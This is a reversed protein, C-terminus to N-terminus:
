SPPFLPASEFFRKIEGPYEPIPGNRSAVFAGVRNGIRAASLPDKTRFFDHAFAASFADGAGVADKIQIPIGPIDHLQDDFFVSCGKEAATIIVVGINPYARVLSRCRVELSPNREGVVQNVVSVEDKNMKVITCKPLSHKLIRKHDLSKRINVDYFVIPFNTLALVRDLASASLASRQVLSGFYLLDFNVLGPNITDPHIYDYATHEHITYDPQGLDLVVDVTGTPHDPDIQIFRSNVGFHACLDLAQKGLRDDGVRSIIHAEGGCQVSHAAFNFPAGGLFEKGEIIDWLIEGFALVKM